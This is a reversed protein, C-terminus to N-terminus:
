KGNMPASRNGKFKHRMEPLKCCWELLADLKKQKEIRFEDLGLTKKYDHAICTKRKYWKFGEPLESEILDEYDMIFCIGTNEGPAHGECCGNTTYGKENLIRVSNQVGEDVM